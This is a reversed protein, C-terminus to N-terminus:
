YINGVKTGTWGALQWNVNSGATDIELLGNGTVKANGLLKSDNKAKLTGNVVVVNDNELKLSANNCVDVEADEKIEFATYSIFSTSRNQLAKFSTEGTIALLTLPEVVVHHIVNKEEITGSYNIKSGNFTVIIRNEGYNHSSIRAKLTALLKAADTDAKVTYRFYSGAFEHDMAQNGDTAETVDIIGNQEGNICGWTTVHGNAKVNVLGSNYIEEHLDGDVNIVGNKYNKLVAPAQVLVAGTAAVDITGKNTSTGKLTLQANVTVNKSNTLANIKNEKGNLEISGENNAMTEVVLQGNAKVDGKNTLTSVTLTGDEVTLTAVGKGCNYCENHNILTTISSVGKSNLANENQVDAELTAANLNITGENHIRPTKVTCGEAIITGNNLINSIIDMGKKVTLVSNNTLETIGTVEKNATQGANVEVANVGNYTFEDIINASELKIKGGNITMTVNVNNHDKTYNKMRDVVEQTLELGDGFPYVQFDIDLTTTSNTLRADMLNLLDATNSARIETEQYFYNDDFHVTATPINLGGVWLNLKDLTFEANDNGFVKRIVGPRWAGRMDNATPDYLEGYVVVQMKEWGNFAPLAISIGCVRDSEDAANNALLVLGDGPFNFVYEYVPTAEEETMGYPIQGDATSAYQVLSRAVEQTFSKRNYLGSALVYDCGDKVNSKDSVSKAWEDLGSNAPKVYAVNPLTRGSPDKFVVKKIKFKNSAQNEFYFKAYTMILKMSVDAALKGDARPELDRYIQEYGVSFQNERNVFYNKISSHPNLVVNAKIPHWLDRRNTARNNQPFFAIYNGECLQSGHNVWEDDSDGRVYTYNTQINDTLKYMQWWCTQYKWPTENANPWEAFGRFEDMLYLGLADGNEFKGTEANYRTEAEDDALVVSGVVPRGKLPNAVKVDPTVLDDQSCAALLAGVAATALLYKTKM